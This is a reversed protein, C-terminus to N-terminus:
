ICNFVNCFYIKQRESMTIIYEFSLTKAQVICGSFSAKFHCQTLTLHWEGIGHEDLTHCLTTRHLGLMIGDSNRIKNNLSYLNYGRQIYLCIDFIDQGSLCIFIVKQRKVDKYNWQVRRGSFSFLWILDCRAHCFGYLSTACVFIGCRMQLADGSFSLRPLHFHDPSEVLIYISYRFPPCCPRYHPHLHPLTNGRAEALRRIAVRFPHSMRLAADPRETEKEQTVTGRMQLQPWWIYIDWPAARSEHQRASTPM